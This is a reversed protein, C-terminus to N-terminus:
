VKQKYVRKKGAMIEINIAQIIYIGTNTKRKNAPKYYQLLGKIDVLDRSRVLNILDEKCLIRIENRMIGHNLEKKNNKLTFEQFDYNRSEEKIHIFRTKGKKSGCGGLEISCINPSRLLCDDQEIEQKAGCRECKFVAKECRFRIHKVKKVVGRILIRKNIFRADINNYSIRIFEQANM